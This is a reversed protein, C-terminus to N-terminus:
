QQAFGSVEVGTNTTDDYDPEGFQLAMTLARQESPKLRMPSRSRLVESNQFSSKGGPVHGMM